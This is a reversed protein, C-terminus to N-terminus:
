HRHLGAARYLMADHVALNTHTFKYLNGGDVLVANDGSRWGTLSPSPISYCWRITVFSDRPLHVPTRHESTGRDHFRRIPSAHLKVFLMSNSIPCLGLGIQCLYYLYQLTANHALQIGHNISNAVLFSTCLHHVPGAEGCHPKFEIQNM